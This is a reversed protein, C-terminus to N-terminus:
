EDMFACCMYVLLWSSYCATLGTTNVVPFGM